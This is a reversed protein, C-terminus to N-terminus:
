RARLVRFRDDGAVEDVHRFRARMRDPYDLFRNAVIWLEGGRALHDPAQDIIRAAVTSSTRVGRHFPPNSVILDFRGEVEDYVDSAHVSGVLENARLTEATAALAVADVDIATVIAGRAALWGSLVGSGCGVDLARAASVDPLSSTLLETAPDITGHSFLGPYSAIKLGLADFSRRWDELRSPARTTTDALLLRCHARADITRAEGAHERLVASAGRIGAKNHGAVAIQDASGRVNALLMALRDREKPLRVIALDAHEAYAFWPAFVCSPYARAIRLDTTFADTAGVAEGVAPGLDITIVRARQLATANALLIREEPLM